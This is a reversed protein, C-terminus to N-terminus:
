SVCNALFPMEGSQLTLRDAGNILDDLLEGWVHLEAVLVEDGAEGGWVILLREDAESFLHLWLQPFDLARVRAIRQGRM